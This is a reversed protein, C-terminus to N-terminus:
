IYTGYLGAGPEGADFSVRGCAVGPAAAASSTSSSPTASSSVGDLEECCLTFWRASMEEVRTEVGGRGRVDGDGQEQQAAADAYFAHVAPLATQPLRSPDWRQAVSDWVILDVLSRLAHEVCDGKPKQGGISRKAESHLPPGPPTDEQLLALLTTEFDQLQQQEGELTAASSPSRSTLLRTAARHAADHSVQPPTAQLWATRDPGDILLQAEAEPSLLAAGHMYRLLAARTGHADGGGEAEAKLCACRSVAAPQSILLPLLQEFRALSVGSRVGGVHNSRIGLKELAARADKPVVSAPHQHHHQQQALALTHGLLETDLWSAPLSRNRVPRLPAGEEAAHFLALALAALADEEDDAGSTSLAGGRQLFRALALRNTPWRHLAIGAAPSHAWAAASRLVQLTGHLCSAM